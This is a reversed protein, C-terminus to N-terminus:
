ERWGGMEFWGRGEGETMRVSMELIIEVSSVCRRNSSSVAREFCENARVQHCRSCLWMHLLVTSCIGCSWKDAVGCEKRGRSEDCSLCGEVM